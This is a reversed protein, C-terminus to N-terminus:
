YQSGFTENGRRSSEPRASNKDPLPLKNREIASEMELTNGYPGLSVKTIKGLGKGFINGDRSTAHLVGLSQYNLTQARM